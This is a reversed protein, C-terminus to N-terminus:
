AVEKQIDIQTPVCLDDLSLFMTDGDDAVGFVQLDENIHLIDYKKMRRNFYNKGSLEFIIHTGDSYGKEKILAKLKENRERHYKETREAQRECEEVWENYEKDCQEQMVKKQEKSYPFYDNFYQMDKWKHLIRCGDSETIIGEEGVSLVKVKYVCKYCGMDSCGYTLLVDGVNFDSLIAM